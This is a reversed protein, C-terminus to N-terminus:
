IFGVEWAEVGETSLCSFLKVRYSIQTTKQTKFVAGSLNPLHYPHFSYSHLYTSILYKETKLVSMLFRAVNVNGRILNSM